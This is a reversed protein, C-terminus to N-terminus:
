LFDALAAETSRRALRLRGRAVLVFIFHFSLPLREPLGLGALVLEAEDLSGRELLFEVLWAALYMVNGAVGTQTALELGERLDQEASRLDGHQRSLAGRFGLLGSLTLLEGNRRARDIARAYFAIAADVHGAAGLAHGVYYLSYGRTLEIRGPAIAREALAATRERDAGLRTEFHA